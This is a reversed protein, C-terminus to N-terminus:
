RTSTGAARLPSSAATSRPTPRATPSVIATSMAVPWATWMGWPIRSETRVRVALM